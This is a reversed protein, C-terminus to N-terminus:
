IFARDYVWKSILCYVLVYTHAEAVSSHTLFYDWLSLLEELLTLVMQRRPIYGLVM